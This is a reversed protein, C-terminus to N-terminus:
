PAQIFSVGEFEFQNDSDKKYTDLYPSYTKVAVRDLSPAIEIIRMFGLGGEELMQYNSLMQYVQNGHKGKEVLVGTGSGLIHGSFVFKINEHRSVFEEWMSVGSNANNLYEGPVYHHAEESGHLKNDSYLYTHTLIIVNRDAYKEVVDSAWSLVEDRPGFELSLVLWDTDKASFLHYTNDSRSEEFAGGFSSSQSLKQLPFYKNFRSSDRQRGAMSMDHNGVALAYPVAGDLFNISEQANKWEAETNKHVIDGEHLVFVINNDRANDRIWKTQTSFIGPHELAYIQTDPLVVLRFTEDQPMPENESGFDAIIFVLLATITLFIFTRRM